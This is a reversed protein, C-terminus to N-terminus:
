LTYKIQLPTVVGYTNRTLLTATGSAVLKLKVATGANSFVHEVGNTVAEWNSGSDPSLFCSLNTDNVFSLTARIINSAETTLIESQFTQGPLFTIKQNATDITATGTGSDWYNMELSTILTRWVNGPNRVELVTETRGGGGVTQQQGDQTNTNTGVIGNTSSGVIWAHGLTNRVVLEPLDVLEINSTALGVKGQTFAFNVTSRKLNDQQNINDAIKRIFSVM